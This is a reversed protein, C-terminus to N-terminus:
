RGGAQSERVALEKELMSRFISRAQLDKTEAIKARLIEVAGDPRPLNKLAWIATERVPADREGDIADLLPGFASPSRGYYLGRVARRRALVDGDAIMAVLVPEPPFLDHGPPLDMLCLTVFHRGIYKRGSDTATELRHSIWVITRLDPPREQLHRELDDLFSELEEPHEHPSFFINAFATRLWGSAGGWTADSVGPPTRSPDVRHISGDPDHALADIAAMGERYMQRAAVFRRLSLGFTLVGALVLLGVIKVAASAIGRGRTRRDESAM